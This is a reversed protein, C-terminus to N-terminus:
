KEILAKFRHIFYKDSLLFELSWYLSPDYVYPYAADILKYRGEDRTFVACIDRVQMTTYCRLKIDKLAAMVMDDEDPIAVMKKRLARMDAESAMKRCDTRDKKGTGLNTAPQSLSENRSDKSTISDTQAVLEKEMVPKPLEDRLKNSLQEFPIFVDVTDRQWGGTADVYTRRLGDETRKEEEMRIDQLVSTQKDVTPPAPETGVVVAIASETKAVNSLAPETKGATPSTPGVKAFSLQASDSNVAGSPLPKASPNKQSALDGPTPSGPSAQPASDKAKEKKRFGGAFLAGVTKKKKGTEQQTADAPVKDAAVTEQAARRISDGSATTTMTPSALVTNEKAMSDVVLLPTKEEPIAPLVGAVPLSDGPNEASKSMALPNSDSALLASDTAPKEPAAAAFARMSDKPAPLPDPNVVLAPEMTTKVMANSAVAAPMAGGAILPTALLGPDSIVSALIVTFADNTMPPPIPTSVVAAPMEQKEGMQVELSQYDFLGWGKEQFNKLAMGRDKKFGAFRFRYEPYKKEPFGIIMEYASDKLRPVILFGDRSSSLLEPGMKIYFPQQQDAQIFMYHHHQGWLVGMSGLLVLLMFFRPLM